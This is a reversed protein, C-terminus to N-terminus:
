ERNNIKGLIMLKELSEGFLTSVDNLLQQKDMDTQESMKKMEQYAKGGIADKNGFIKAQIFSTSAGYTMISEQSAKKAM